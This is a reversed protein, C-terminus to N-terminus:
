EAETESTSGLSSAASGSAAALRRRRREFRPAVWPALTTVWPERANTRYHESWMGELQPCWQSTWWDEEDSCAAYRSSRVTSGSSGGGGGGSSSGNGGGDVDGGGGGGSSSGPSGNVGVAALHQGFRATYVLAPLGSEWSGTGGEAERMQVAGAETPPRGEGGQHEQWWRWAAALAGTRISKGRRTREAPYCLPAQVYRTGGITADWAFHSHAFVHMAPRLRHLRAALPDSGVAKAQM